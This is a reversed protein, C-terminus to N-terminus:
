DHGGGRASGAFAVAAHTSPAAGQRTIRVVDQKKEGLRLEAIAFLRDVVYYTGNVRFNVLEAKGDTGIVFLPPAEGQTISSPFEIYVKAGDDFARLPRWAPKDGSIDYNFHLDAPAIGAAVSRDDAAKQESAKVAMLADQPYSWSIATMATQPTSELQIHYTRLSTTVVLNTKLGATYPKVLIHVQKGSGTGSTTDGIVWRATDGSSIAVLQEGAQLTIDSVKDPAAFLRYVAGEMFPYVQIANLYGTASPQQLAAKNAAAVAATQDAGEVAATHRVSHALAPSGTAAIAATILVIHRPKM